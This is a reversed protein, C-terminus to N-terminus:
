RVALRNRLWGWLSPKDNAAVAAQATRRMEVLASAAEKGFLMNHVLTISSEFDLTVHATGGTDTIFEFEVVSFARSVRGTIDTDLMQKVRIHEAM